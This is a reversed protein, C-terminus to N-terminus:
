SLMRGSFILGILICFKYLCLVASNLICLSSIWLVLILLFHHCQERPTWVTYMHLHGYVVYAKQLCCLQKTFYSSSLRPIVFHGGGGWWWWWYCWLFTWNLALIAESRESYYIFELPFDGFKLCKLIFVKVPSIIQLKCGHGPFSGSSLLDM